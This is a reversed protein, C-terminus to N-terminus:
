QGKVFVGIKDASLINERVMYPTVKFPMNYISEGSACSRESVLEIGQLDSASIGLDSLCVPLGVQFFFKAVKKAEELKKEMCLQVITSFAVKEGHIYEHCGEHATLGNHIAHAAALGGSEFGLGSLLTNAEIVKEIAETVEGRDIDKVAQVGYDFLLDRCLKALAVAAETPRGGVPNIGHSARMCADAEYYTSMADGMGSVLFRKPAKAIIESDVIVCYPDTPYYVYEDFKGDPKYFVSCAACPADNSALTPVVALQVNLQHALARVLDVAKGGGVAVVFAPKGNVKGKLQKNVHELEEWSCEGGFNVFVVQKAAGYKVLSEEIMRGISNQRSPSCVVVATDGKLPKLFLGLYQVIGKGQAYKHPSSFIKYSLPGFTKHPSFFLEPPFHSM